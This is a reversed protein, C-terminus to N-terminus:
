TVRELDSAARGLLRAVSAISLGIVTESDGEVREVISRGLGQYGYAGAKDDGEGTAVYADIEVPTLARFHVKATDAEVWARGECMIAIGTHVYHARGSLTAIMRRADDRDAPRGLLEGKETVVLTDAGLVMDAPRAAAVSTAKRRALLIVLARGSGFPERADYEGEGVTEDAGSPVVECDLGAAALLARRRPSSSALVLRRPALSLASGVALPTLLPEADLFM